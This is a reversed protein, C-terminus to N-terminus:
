IISNIDSYNYPSFLIKYHNNFIFKTVKNQLKNGNM